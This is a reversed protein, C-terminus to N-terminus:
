VQSRSVIAHTLNVLTNIGEKIDPFEQQLWTAPGYVHNEHLEMEVKDVSMCMINRFEDGLLDASLFVDGSKPDYAALRKHRPIGASNDLTVWYLIETKMINKNPEM